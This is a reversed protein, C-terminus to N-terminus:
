SIYILYVISIVFINDNMYQDTICFDVKSDWFCKNVLSVGQNKQEGIFTQVIMKYRDLKLQKMEFKVLDTFEKVEVLSVEPDYAQSNFKKTMLGHLLSKIQQIKPLSTRVMEKLEPKSNIKENTSTRIQNEQKTLQSNSDSLDAM